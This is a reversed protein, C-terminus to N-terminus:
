DHMGRGELIWPAYKDIRAERTRSQKASSFYLVYGRKRGPTLQEWSSRLAPLEDLKRQLEDPIVIEDKAKFDVKLGAQEVQLAERIYDRVFPERERVSTESTFKIVRAAQCNESPKELIQHTDKLLAGKFFSISAYSKLASVIAINRGDFTYCPVKWKLEETLGCSLFLRPIFDTNSFQGSDNM